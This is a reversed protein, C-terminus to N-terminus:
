VTHRFGGNFGKKDNKYGANYLIEMKEIVGEGGEEIQLENM